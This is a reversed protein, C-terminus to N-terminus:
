NEMKDMAETLAVQLEECYQYSSERLKESELKQLSIQLNCCQTIM